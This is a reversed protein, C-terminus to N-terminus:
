PRSMTATLLWGSVALAAFFLALMLLANRRQRRELRGDELTGVLSPRGDAVRLRHEAPEAALRDRRAEAERQAASRVLLWEQASFEGDGNLDFRARLGAMDQKWDAVIRGTERTLDFAALPQRTVFEGLAYLPEHALIMEESYRLAQLPRLSGLLGSSPTGRGRWQRRRAVTFAFGHPEILCSGSDDHLAFPQASEGQEVVRWNKDNHQTEIKWRCWLCESGSLHARLPGLPGPAAIGRLEVYGQAASAVRSQPTNDIAQVARLARLWGALGLLALGGTVPAWAWRSGHEAMMWALLFCVAMWALAPGGPGLLRLTWAPMGTTADREPVFM